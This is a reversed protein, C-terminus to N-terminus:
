IMKETETGYFTGLFNLRRKAGEMARAIWCASDLGHLTREVKTRITVLMAHAERTTAKNARYLDPIIFLFTLLPPYVVNPLLMRRSFRMAYLMLFIEIVGELGM